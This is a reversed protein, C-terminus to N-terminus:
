AEAKELIRADNILRHVGDADPPGVDEKWGNPLELRYVSFTLPDDKPFVKKFEQSNRFAAADLLSKFVWGGLSEGQQGVKRVAGKILSTDYVRTRGLTYAINDKMQINKWFSGVLHIM